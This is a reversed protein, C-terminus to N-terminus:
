TQVDPISKAIAISICGCGTGVDAITRRKPAVKLWKIAREVLLETEPRPILVDSNIELTLGFFEWHGLGFM